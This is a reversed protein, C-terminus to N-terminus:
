PNPAVKGITAEDDGRQFGSNASSVGHKAIPQRHSDNSIADDKRSLYGKATPIRQSDYLFNQRSSAAGSAKKGKCTPYIYIYMTCLTSASTCLIVPPIYMYYLLFLLSPPSCFRRRHLSLEISAPQKLLLGDAVSVCFCFCFSTRSLLEAKGRAIQSRTPLLEGM